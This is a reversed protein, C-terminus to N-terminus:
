NCYCQRDNGSPNHRQRPPTISVRGRYTQTAADAQTAFEVLRSALMQDPLADLRVTTSKNKSKAFKAVDPGPVDFVLDLISLQQLLVVAQKAQINTFNDVERKAVIGDFPARLTADSLNNNATKLQVEVGQVAAEQAKVDETRSGARGKKLDQQKAKLTAVAVNFTSLDGDLKSRTEFGQKLLKQTRGLQEKAANVQAQAADVAAQLSAIDETRAGATMAKLKEKAQELQTELNAIDSKFDRLDLQAIVDGKRVKSAARIPLEIIRGAVRFTLEVQEHPLVTAPYTYHKAASVPQVVVTKIPRIVQKAKTNKNSEEGCAALLFGLVCVLAARAFVSFKM